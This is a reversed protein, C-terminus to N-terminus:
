RRDDMPHCPEPKGLAASLVLIRHDTGVTLHHILSLTEELRWGRAPAAVLHPKM